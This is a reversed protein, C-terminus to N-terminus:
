SSKVLVEFRNNDKDVLIIDGGLEQGAVIKCNYEKLLAEIKYMCDEVDDIDRVKMTSEEYKFTKM